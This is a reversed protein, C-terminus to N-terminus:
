AWRCIAGWAEVASRNSCNPDETIAILRSVAMDTLANAEQRLEDVREAPIAKLASWYLEHVRTPSLGLQDGIERFTRRATRMEIITATREVSALTLQRRAM